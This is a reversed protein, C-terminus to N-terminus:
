CFAESARYETLGLTPSNKIIKDICLYVYGGFAFQVTDKTRLSMFGVGNFNTIQHLYVDLSIISFPAIPRRGTRREGDITFAHKYSNGAASLSGHGSRKFVCTNYRIIVIERRNELGSDIIEVATHLLNEIPDICAVIAVWCGFM